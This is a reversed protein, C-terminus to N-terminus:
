CAARGAVWAGRREQPAPRKTPAGRGRDAAEPVADAWPMAPARPVDPEVPQLSPRDPLVVRFRAGDEEADDAELLGGHTTTVIDYATFLGLGTGAGPGKTTFLPEFLHRRAAESLGPGNDSVEIEVGRDTRRTRVGVSPRGGSAAARELAADTANHVLVEVVRRLGDAHGEVTQVAPDLDIALEVGPAVARAYREVLANIEVPARAVAAASRFQMRRVVAEARRGHEAVRGANAVLDDALALAAHTDGGVLAERLDAAAEEQLASFNLVFNLPNHLEHAVGSAVRGLAALKEQRLVCDQTERLEQLAAWLDDNRQRLVETLGWVRRDYRELAYSAVMGCVGTSVLFFANSAQAVTGAGSALLAAYYTGVVVAGCLSATTFRLRLLVHAFVLLLVPGGYYTHYAVDDHAVYTMAALVFGHGVVLAGLLGESRRRPGLAVVTVIGCALLVCGGLRLARIEHLAVPVLAADLLGYGAFLALGLLLAVVRLAFHRRSYGARFSTEAEPDPYSLSPLCPHM